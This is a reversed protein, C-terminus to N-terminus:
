RYGHCTDLSFFNVTKYLYLGVIACLKRQYEQTGTLSTSLLSLCHSNIYLTPLESIYTQLNYWALENRSIVLKITAICLGNDLWTVVSLYIYNTILSRTILCMTHYFTYIDSFSTLFLSSLKLFHHSTLSSIDTYLLGSQHVFIQSHDKGTITWCLIWVYCLSIGYVRQIMQIWHCLVVYHTSLLVDLYCTSLM